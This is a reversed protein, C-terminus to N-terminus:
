PGLGSRVTGSEAFEIRVGVSAGAAVYATEMVEALL